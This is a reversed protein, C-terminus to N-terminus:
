DMQMQWKLYLHLHTKGRMERVRGKEGSKHLKCHKIVKLSSYDHLSLFDMFVSTVKEPCVSGWVCATQWVVALQSAALSASCKAEKQKELLFMRRGSVLRSDPWSNHFTSLAYLSCMNMLSSLSYYNNLKCECICCKSNEVESYFLLRLYYHPFSM